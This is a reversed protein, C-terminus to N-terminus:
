QIVQAHITHLVTNDDVVSFSANVIEAGEEHILRLIENFMSQSDLGTVLVVQLISGTVHVDIRNSGNGSSSGASGLREMGVMLRDKKEKM